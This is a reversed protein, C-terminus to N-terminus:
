DKYCHASEMSYVFTCLNQFDEQYHSSIVVSGGQAAFKHLLNRLMKVGESDLANMPEDLLVIRPNELFTQAINLRQIMGRSYKGVKKNDEPDLGVNIMM